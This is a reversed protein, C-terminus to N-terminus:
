NEGIQFNERYIRVLKVEKFKPKERMVPLDCLSIHDVRMEKYGPLQGM